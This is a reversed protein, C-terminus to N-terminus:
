GTPRTSECSKGFSFIIYYAREDEDDENKPARSHAPYIPVLRLLESRQSASRSTESM